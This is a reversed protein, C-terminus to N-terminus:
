RSKVIFLLRSHAEVRIITPDSSRLQQLRHVFDQEVQHDRAAKFMARFEFEDTKAFPSLIAGAANDTYSLTDGKAQWRDRGALANAAPEPHREWTDIIEQPPIPPSVNARAPPVVWALVLSLLLIPKVGSPTRRRHTTRLATM